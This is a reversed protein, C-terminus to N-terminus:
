VSLCVKNPLFVKLDQMSKWLSFAASTQQFSKDNSNERDTYKAWVSCSQTLVYMLILFCFCFFFVFSVLDTQNALGAQSFYTFSGRAVYFVTWSRQPKSLIVKASTPLCGSQNRVQCHLNMSSM